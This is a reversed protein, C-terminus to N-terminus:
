HNYRGYTFWFIWAAVHVSVITWLFVQFGRKRTKHGLARQALLAGPWGGLIAMVHLSTEAIRWMDEEARKKDAWYAAFTILSVILYANTVFGLRILGAAQSIVLGSGIGALIFGLYRLQRASLGPYRSTKARRRESNEDLTYIIRDGQRPRREGSAFSSAHIFIDDGGEDPTLFGFGRADNWKVLIGQGQKSM